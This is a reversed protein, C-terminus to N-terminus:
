SICSEAQQLREVLIATLLPHNGIYPALTIQVKHFYRQYTFLSDCITRFVLGDFLLYPLLIIYRLRTSYARDLAEKVSPIAVAVYAAEAWGFGMMDQLIKAVQNIDDNAMIDSSGRGIVLLLADRRDYDPDALKVETSIIREKAIQLLNMHMGLESGIIVKIKPYQNQFVTITNPIDEKVHGAAVLFVPLTTICQFGELRLFELAEPLNPQVLELFGSTCFRNPLAQQVSSTLALFENVGTYLRTGHGMLLVAPVSKLTVM